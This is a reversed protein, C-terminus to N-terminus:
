ECPRRSKELTSLVGTLSPVHLLLWRWSPCTSNCAQLVWISIHLGFCLTMFKPTSINISLYFNLIHSKHVKISYYINKKPTKKYILAVLLLEARIKLGRNIFYAVCIVFFIMYFEIKYAWSFLTVDQNWNPSRDM